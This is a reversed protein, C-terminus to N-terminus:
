RDAQHVHIGEEIGEIRREKIRLEVVIAGFNLQLGGKIMPYRKASNVKEWPLRM